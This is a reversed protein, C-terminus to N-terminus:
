DITDLLYEDEVEQIVPISIYFTSGEGPIGASEVWIRGNQAEILKQCFYLGLGHGYVERDSNNNARYFQKFLYKQAHPPIGIGHDKVSIIIEDKEQHAAVLIDGGNPAYKIANDVLNLVVDAFHSEDAWISPLDAPMDVM